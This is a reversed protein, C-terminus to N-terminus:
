YTQQIKAATNVVAAKDKQLTAEPTNGQRLYETIMDKMASTAVEVDKGRYWNEAFLAQTAFPGMKEDEQQTTIQERYPSPRFTRATYDAVKEKSTVFQVFGWAENQDPSKKVVSEVWYNAVNTPSDPNLQPVTAIQIDLQPARAEIRPYDYAFGLFFASRGRVFEDFANQMKENWSYRDATPRAFGTYFDLARLTPHSRDTAREVGANFTVANGESVVVGSQLMLLSVIDFFNDINNSTGLAVGSQIIDLTTNFRTTKQIMEVFEDWTKPPGAIGARDLITQNYFLALSDFAMPLGYIGEGIVVDDYVTKVYQSRMDRDRPLPITDVVLEQDKTYQNKQVLRPMRVNAPAPVLRTQNERLWRVHMSVIDPGVDDALANTFLQDFEEYRVQRVTIAVHPYRASYEAAYSRLAEVDGFVTWYELKVPVIAAREETSLGKCGFGSVVLLTTLTLLAFISHLRNKM